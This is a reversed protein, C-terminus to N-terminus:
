CVISELLWAGATFTSVPTLVVLASAPIDGSVRVMTTVVADAKTSGLAGPKRIIANAKVYPQIFAGASINLVRHNGSELASVRAVMDALVTHLDTGSAWPGIPGDIVVVSDLQTGYHDYQRSHGFTGASIVAGASAGGVIETVILGDPM